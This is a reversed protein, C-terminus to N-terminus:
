AEYPLRRFQINFAVLYLGGFSKRTTVLKLWDKTITEVSFPVRGGPKVTVNAVSAGGVRINIGAFADGAGNDSSQQLAFVLNVPSTPECWVMGFLLEGPRRNVLQVTPDYEGSAASPIEGFSFSEVRPQPYFGNSSM